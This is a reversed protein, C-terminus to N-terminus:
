RGGKTWHKPAYLDWVADTAKRLKEIENARSFGHKCHEFVEDRKLRAGNVAHEEVILKFWQVLDDEARSVEFETLKAKFKETWKDFDTKKFYALNKHRGGLNQASVIYSHSFSVRFQSKESWRTMEVGTGENLYIKLEETRIIKCLTNEVAQRRAFAEADTMRRDFSRIFEAHNIKDSDRQAKALEYKSELQEIMVDDHADFRALNLKSVRSQSQMAKEFRRDKEVRLDGCPEEQMASLEHGTWSAPFMFSGALYFAENLSIHATRDFQLKPFKYPM